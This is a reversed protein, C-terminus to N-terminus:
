EDDLAATAMEIEPQTILQKITAISARVSLVRVREVFSTVIDPHEALGLRALLAQPDAPNRLLLSVEAIEDNDSNALLYELEPAIEANTTM